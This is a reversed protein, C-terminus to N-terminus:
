DKALDYEERFQSALRDFRQAFIPNRKRAPPSLIATWGHIESPVIALSVSSPCGAIDKLREYFKAALDSNSLKTRKAVHHGVSSLLITARRATKTSHRAYCDVRFACKLLDGYLDPYTSPGNLKARSHLAVLIQLRSRRRFAVPRDISYRSTWYVRSSSPRLPQCHATSKPLGGFSLDPRATVLPAATMLTQAAM